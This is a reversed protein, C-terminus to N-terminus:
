GPPFPSLLARLRDYAESSFFVTFDVAGSEIAAMRVPDEPPYLFLLTDVWATKGRGNRRLSAVADAATPEKGHHFPVGRRSRITYVLGDDSVTHGEALMPIWSYDLGQTYLSELYPGTIFQKGIPPLRHADLSAPEGFTGVRLSGGRCRTEGAGGLATGVGLVLLFILICLIIQPGGTTHTGEM